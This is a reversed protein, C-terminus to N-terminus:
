GYVSSAAQTWVADNQGWKVQKHVRRLLIMYINLPLFFFRVNVFNPTGFAILFLAIM